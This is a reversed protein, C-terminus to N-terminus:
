DTVVRRFKSRSSQRTRAQSCNPRARDNAVVHNQIEPEVRSQPAVEGGHRKRAPAGLARRVDGVPSRRSGIQQAKRLSGGDPRNRRGDRRRPSPLPNRAVTNRSRHRFRSAALGANGASTGGRDDLERTIGNRAQPCTKHKERLPVVHHSLFVVVRRVGNQLDQRLVCFNRVSCWFSRSASSACRVNPASTVSSSRRLPSSRRRFARAPVSLRVPWGRM